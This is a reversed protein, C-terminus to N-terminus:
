YRTFSGLSCPDKLGLQYYWGLSFPKVAFLFFVGSSSDGCARGSSQLELM